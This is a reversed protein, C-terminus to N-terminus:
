FTYPRRDTNYSSRRFMAWWPTCISPSPTDIDKAKSCYTM